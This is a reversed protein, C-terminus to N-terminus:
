IMHFFKFFHLLWLRSGLNHQFDRNGSSSLRVKCPPTGVIFEHSFPLPSYLFHDIVVWELIVLTTAQYSTLKSNM